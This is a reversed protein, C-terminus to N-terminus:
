RVTTLIKVLLTDRAQHTHVPATRDSLDNQQQICTDSLWQVCRTHTSPKAALREATNSKWM